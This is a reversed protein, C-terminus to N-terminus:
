FLRGAKVLRERWYPNDLSAYRVKKGSSPAHIFKNGGVYLAVHSVKGEIRFFLLDGEHLSAPDVTFTSEYLNKTTRPTNIGAKKFSYQILGSCDFGRRPSDGGYRYPIGIMRKAVAVATHSPADTGAQSKLVARDPQQSYCEGALGMLVLCTTTIAAHYHFRTHFM